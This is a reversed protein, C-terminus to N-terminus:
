QSENLLDRFYYQLFMALLVALFCAGALINTRDLWRFHKRGIYEYRCRLLYGACLLKWVWLWPPLRGHTPAELYDSIGFLIFTLSARLLIGRKKADSRRFWLPLAAAIVIWAACELYNFAEYASPFAVGAPWNCLILNM